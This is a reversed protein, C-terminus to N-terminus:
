RAKGPSTPPPAAPAAANEVFAAAAGICVELDHDLQKATATATAIEARLDDLASANLDHALFTAQDRLTRVFTDFETMAPVAAKVIADYRARSVSIRLEGRKRLGDGQITTNDKTWQEFVPAATNQMPEVNNRFRLAQQEAADIAQVFRAYAQMVTNGAFDSKALNQMRDFADALNLRSREAETHVREVWDVLEQSKATGALQSTSSCAAFLAPLLLPLLFGRPHM